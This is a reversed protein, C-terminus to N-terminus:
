LLTSISNQPATMQSVLIDYSFPKRLINAAYDRGEKKLAVRHADIAGTMYIVKVEPNVVRICHVMEIGDLGPMEVDTVVWCTPDSFYSSYGQLGSTATCVQFGEVRLVAAVMEAIKEDDDVVLATKEFAVASVEPLIQTLFLL